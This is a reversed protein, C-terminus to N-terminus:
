ILLKSLRRLCVVKSKRRPIRRELKASTAKINAGTKASTAKINASTKQLFDQMAKRSPTNKATDKSASSDNTVTRSPADNQHLTAGSTGSPLSVKSEKAKKESGGNINGNTFDGRSPRHLLSPMKFHRSTGPREGDKAAEDDPRWPRQPIQFSARFKM